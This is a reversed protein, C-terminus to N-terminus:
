TERAHLDLPKETMRGIIATPRLPPKPRRM